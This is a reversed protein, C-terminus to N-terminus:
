KVEVSSLFSNAGLLYVRATFIGRPNTVNYQWQVVGSVAREVHRQTQPDNPPDPPVHGSPVVFEYDAGSMAGSIKLTVAYVSEGAPSNALRVMKATLVGPVSPITTTTTTTTTALVTTTPIQTTTTTSTTVTTVLGLLAVSNGYTIVINGDINEAVGWPGIFWPNRTSGGLLKITVGAPSVSWMGSSPDRREIALLDGSRSFSLGEVQGDAVGRLNLVFTSVIGNSIKRIDTLDGVFIEGAANVAIGELRRFQASSAPGDLNPSPGVYCGCGAVPSVSGDLAIRRVYEGQETVLVEGSSPDVAVGRLFDFQALVGPGDLHGQVGSGALTTVVGSPSILRVRFNGSDTVVINGSLDIAVAYPASFQASAGPGDVYGPVGTGALTSVVGQPTLKRVVHNFRDAVILNGQGDIAVGTPASFKALQSPGDVYGAANGGALVTVSIVSTQAQSQQIAFVGGGLVCVMAAGSLVSKRGLQIRVNRFIQKLM